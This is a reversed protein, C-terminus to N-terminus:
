RMIVIKAVAQPKHSANQPEERIFYVGPSLHRIDNTGANLEMVRRGAADLLLARSMVPNNSLGSRTGFGNLVLIGRVLTAQPKQSSAQLREEEMGVGVTDRIVTISSSGSNSVYMRSHTPNWALVEPEAGVPISCIVSDMKYAGVVAVSRSEWGICYLRNAPGSKGNDLITTSYGVRLNKYFTDTAARTIHLYGEWGDVGYVKDCATNSYLGDPSPMQIKRLVTDSTCDIVAVSDCSTGGIYLKNHNENWCMTSYGWSPVPITAVLSDVGADIVEVANESGNGVYLKNDTGDYCLAYPNGGVTVVARLTDGSGDIVAVDDGYRNAVYVKGEDSCCLAGPRQGIDVTIIESDSACDLVFVM